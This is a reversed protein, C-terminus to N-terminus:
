KQSADQRNTKKSNKKPAVKTKAKKSKALFVDDLEQFYEGIRETISELLYGKIKQHFIHALKENENIRYRTLVKEVLFVDRLRRIQRRLNSQAIGLLELKHRKRNIIVKEEIEHVNLPKKALLLVHLIDVIIDRSDGPQLVGIALCARTVLQRQKLKLPREYKRLTIEALPTEKAKM